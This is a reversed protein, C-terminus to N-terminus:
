REKRYRSLFGKNKGTNGEDNKEDGKEFYRRYIEDLDDGRQRLHAITYGADVARRSLERRIDWRSEVM